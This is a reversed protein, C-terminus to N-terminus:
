VNSQSGEQLEFEVYPASQRIIESVLHSKSLGSVRQLESIIQNADKQLRVLECKSEPTPYTKITISFM